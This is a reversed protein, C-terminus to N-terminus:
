GKAKEVTCEGERENTCCVRVMEDKSNVIETVSPSSHLTNLEEGFM